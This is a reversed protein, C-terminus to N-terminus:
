VLLRFLGPIITRSRQSLRSLGTSFTSTTALGYIFCTTLQINCAASASFVALLGTVRRKLPVSLWQAPATVKIDCFRTNGSVVHRGITPM